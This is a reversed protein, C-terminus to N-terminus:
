KLWKRIANDSVNYLRGTASFGLEKTQKLLLEKDPREVKRKKIYSELQKDTYGNNNSRETEKEKKATVMKIKKNKGCHTELSANCNPCVIRLNELSNDLHNGNIHDLILSIKKGHWFENQSCIECVREKLGEEYLKEKM